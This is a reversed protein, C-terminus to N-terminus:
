KARLHALGGDVSITNGSMWSTDDSLLWTTAAVIDEPRGIRGLAHMATSAKLAAESSTIRSVLPTDVLGPAICNVRIKYRAYTAAASTTLGMVAGKAAAIAEHNSLGTVSAASAYLVISGGHEMMAKASARVMGFAATANATMTEEYEAQSTLHAPKLMVSGSACIVGDLRGHTELAAAVLRDASAFVSADYPLALSDTNSAILDLQEQRRGGLILKAGCAKLHSSLLSGVGGTAGAIIYIRNSLPYTQM